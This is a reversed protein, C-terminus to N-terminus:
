EGVLEPYNKLILSGTYQNGAMYAAMNGEAFALENCIEAFYAFGGAAMQDVAGRPSNSREWTWMEQLGGMQLEEFYDLVSTRAIHLEPTHAEITETQSGFAHTGIFFGVSVSEGLTNLGQLHLCAQSPIDVATKRM